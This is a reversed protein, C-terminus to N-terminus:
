LHAYDDLKIYGAIDNLDKLLRNLDGVDTWTIEHEVHECYSMHSRLQEVRAECEQLAKAFAIEAHPASIKQTTNM